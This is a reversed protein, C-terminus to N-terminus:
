EVGYEFAQLKDGWWQMLERRQELYEARNYAGKIKNKEEHALSKEIVEPQLDSQTILKKISHWSRHHHHNDTLTISIKTAALSNSKTKASQFDYGSVPLKALEKKLLKEPLGADLLAGLFMDGSIGSFTDAYAINEALVSGLKWLDAGCSRM